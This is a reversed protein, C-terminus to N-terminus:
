LFDERKPNFVDVLTGKELAHVGHLADPPILVSDGKTVERTEGSVMFAFRGEAVYTIQNHPHSHENGLAGNEFSVEVMMLTDSFALIKRTVGPECPQVPCAASNVFM